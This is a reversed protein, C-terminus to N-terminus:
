DQLLESGCYIGKWVTGQDQGHASGLWHGTPLAPVCPHCPTGPTAPPGQPGQHLPPLVPAAEERGPLSTPEAVERRQMILPPPLWHTIVAQLVSQEEFGGRGKGASRALVMRLNITLPCKELLRGAQIEGQM